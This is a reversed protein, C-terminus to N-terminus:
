NFLRLFFSFCWRHYHKTTKFLHIHNNFVSFLISKFVTIRNVKYNVIPQIFNLQVPEIGEILLGEWQDGNYFNNCRDVDTFYNNKRAYMVSKNYLTWIDTEIIEKEDM